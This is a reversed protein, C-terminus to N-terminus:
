SGESRVIATGDGIFVPDSAAGCIAEIAHITLKPFPQLGFAYVRGIRLRGTISVHLRKPAFVQNFQCRQQKLRLALRYNPSPKGYKFAAESPSNEKGNRECHLESSVISFTPKKLKM